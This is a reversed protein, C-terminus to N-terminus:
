DKNQESNEEKYKVAEWLADALEQGLFDFSGIMDGKEYIKVGVHWWTNKGEFPKIYRLDDGLIEVMKGLTIKSAYGEAAGTINKITNRIYNETFTTEGCTRHIFEAPDKLEMLQSKLINQKM